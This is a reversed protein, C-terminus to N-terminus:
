LTFQMGDYATEIGAAKLTKAQESARDLIPNTNNIHILMRRTQSPLEGLLELMGGRGNLALHGMQQGTSTGVGLAQMEDDDWLTGDVMVVDAANLFRMALPTPNGLGPAYCLSKGSRRDVIYLGLNDGCSPSGRRPSYPPANSHLAFATLTIDPLFPITFEAVDRDDELDIPQWRLGGWHELMPFLPFGSSLDRHVNPTCWVDLPCGERLSLLGTVHDIQADALLVGSIGSGRLKSPWLAPNANLQARIDPSANCLLWQKGDVSLAISSQTCPVHDKSGQRAHYCNPCNCNWQPFGGGAAAGLVLVHM